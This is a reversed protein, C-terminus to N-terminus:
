GPRAPSPWRAARVRPSAPRRGSRRARRREVPAAPQHRALVLCLATLGALAVAVAAPSAGALRGSVDASWRTVWAIPGAPADHGANVRLEYWAYWVVYAGAVALLGGAAREVFPLFRRARAVAAERALAVALTMGILVSGMGGAYVAFVSVGSAFTSRDFVTAVAALFVPLTCSISVVAYSVGFLAMSGLGRTRGGRELRPLPLGPHFGLAVAVGLAALGAGIVISLWPVVPQVSLSFVTVLVGAIGFVAAFGATVTAGVVIARAVHRRDWGPAGDAGLFYSLYAPLLAFGCPNFAAVMGATFALALPADIVPTM